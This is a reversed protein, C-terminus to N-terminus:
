KKGTFGPVNSIAQEVWEDYTVKYDITSMIHLKRFLQIVANDDLKVSIPYILHDFIEYKLGVMNSASNKSEKGYNLM